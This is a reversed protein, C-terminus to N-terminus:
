KLGACGASGDELNVIFNAFSGCVNNLTLISSTYPLDPFSSSSTVSIRPQSVIRAALDPATVDWGYQWNHNATRVATPAGLVGLLWRRAATEEAAGWQGAAQERLYDIIPSSPRPDFAPLFRQAALRTAIAATDFEIRRATVWTLRPRGEVLIGIERDAGSLVKLLEAASGELEFTLAITSAATTGGDQLHVLQTKSSGGATWVFYSATFDIAPFAFTPHSTQQGIEAKAAALDAAAPSLSISLTVSAKWNAAKDPDKYYQIGIQEKGESTKAIAASLPVIYFASAAAVDRFVALTAASTLSVREVTQASSPQHSALFAVLCGSLIRM